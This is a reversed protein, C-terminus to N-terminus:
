GWSEIRRPVACFYLLVVMKTIMQLESFVAAILLMCIDCLAQM